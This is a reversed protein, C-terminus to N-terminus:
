EGTHLLTFGQAGPQCDHDVTLKLAKPTRLVKLALKATAVGQQSFHMNFGLRLVTVQLKKFVKNFAGEWTLSM